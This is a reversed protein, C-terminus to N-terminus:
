VAYGARRLLETMADELPVRDYLLRDSNKKALKVFAKHMLGNEFHPDRMDLPRYRPAYLYYEILDNILNLKTSEFNTAKFVRGRRRVRSVHPRSDFCGVMRLERLNLALFTNFDGSQYDVSLASHRRPHSHTMVVEGSESLRRHYPKSIRVSEKTGVKDFIVKGSKDIAVTRERDERDVLWGAEIKFLSAIQPETLGHYLRTMATDAMFRTYTQNQGPALQKGLQDRLAQCLNDRDVRGGGTFASCFGPTRATRRVRSRREM